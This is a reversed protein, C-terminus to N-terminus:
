PIAKILWLSPILKSVSSLLSTAGIQSTTLVTASAMPHSFIWAIFSGVLPPNLLASFSIALFASTPMNTLSLSMGIRGSTLAAPSISPILGYSTAFSPLTIMTTSLSYASSAKSAM